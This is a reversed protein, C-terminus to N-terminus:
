IIRISNQTYIIESLVCSDILEFLIFHAVCGVHFASLEVIFCFVYLMSRTWMSFPGYALASARIKSREDPM